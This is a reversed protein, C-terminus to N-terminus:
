TWLVERSGLAKELTVVVGRRVNLTPCAAGVGEPTTGVFLVVRVFAPGEDFAVRAGHCPALGGSYTVHLVRPDDDDVRVSEPTARVEDRLDNRSTELSTDGGDDSPRPSVGIVVVDGVANTATTAEGTGCASLVGAAVAGM